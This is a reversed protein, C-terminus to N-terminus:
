FSIQLNSLVLADIKCELESITEQITGLTTKLLVCESNKSKYLLESIFYLLIVKFVAM